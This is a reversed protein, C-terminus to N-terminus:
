LRPLKPSELLAECAFAAAPNLDPAQQAYRPAATPPLHARLTNAVSEMKIEISFKFFRAALGHLIEERGDKKEM